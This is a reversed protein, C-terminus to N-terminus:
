EVEISAAGGVVELNLRHAATDYGPSEHLGNMKPFRDDIDVSSMGADVRIRAAM